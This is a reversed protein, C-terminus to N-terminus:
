GQLVPVAAGAEGLWPTPIRSHLHLVLSCARCESGFGAQGGLGVSLGALVSTPTSPPPQVSGRLTRERVGLRGRSRRESLRTLHLEGECPRRPHRRCRPPSAPAAGVAPRCPKAWPRASPGPNSHASQPSQKCPRRRLPPSVPHVSTSPPVRTGEDRGLGRGARPHLEPSVSACVSFVARLNGGNIQGLALSATVGPGEVRRCSSLAGARPLLTPSGASGTKRHDSPRARSLAHGSAAAHWGPGASLASTLPSAAAAGDPPGSTM